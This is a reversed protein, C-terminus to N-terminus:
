SAPSSQPNCGLSQDLNSRLGVEFEENGADRCVRQEGQGESQNCPWSQRFPHIGLYDPLQLTEGRFVGASRRRWGRLIPAGNVSAGVPLSGAAAVVSAQFGVKQSSSLDSTAGQVRRWM